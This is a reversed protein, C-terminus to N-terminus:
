IHLPVTSQLKSSAEAIQQLAQAIGALRGELQGFSTVLQATAQKADRAHVGSELVGRECNELRSDVAQSQRMLGAPGRLLLVVLLLLSLLSVTLVITTTLDM